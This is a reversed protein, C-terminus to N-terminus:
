YRQIITSAGLTSIILANVSYRRTSIYNGTHYWSRIVKESSKLGGIISDETIYRVSSSAAAMRLTENWVSNTLPCDDNLYDINPTTSGDEFAKETEQMVM